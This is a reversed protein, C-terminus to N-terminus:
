KEVVSRVIVLAVSIKGEEGNKDICAMLDEYCAFVKDQNEKPLKSIAGLMMLEAAKANM